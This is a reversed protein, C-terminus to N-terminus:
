IYNDGAANMIQHMLLNKGDNACQHQCDRIPDLTDFFTKAEDSFWLDKFRKNAISGIKGKEDYAKNHCAYVNADAAVVPVVQTFLCKHYSRHSTNASSTLDYTTNVTFKEDCMKQIQRLQKEVPFQILAHYVKFGPTWMPSFRVNEAGHEKFLQAAEVLGEYNGKHVIYNVFLDCDPSKQESFAKLNKLIAEFLHEPMNRHASFQKADNYDVSVRVWKAHRLARAREGTLSQGNTIISLDIGLAQTYDLVQVIGPHMLPEGGGSYTVAKVGIEKLDNLVEKLKATPLEAIKGEWDSERDPSLM